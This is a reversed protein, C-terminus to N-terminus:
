LDDKRDNTLWGNTVLIDEWGDNNLDVFPAAWAWRGMQSRSAASIDTFKGAGVNRFLANGTTMSLFQDRRQGSEKPLFLQQPVIRSGAATFMGAIYLDMHGDRDCDGWAASMGFASLGLGIKDAVDRFKGRDNRYFNLRGFDNAVALDPDGDEDFDDFAAGFSWRSNNENLGSERTIDTFKLNGPQSDNRLFVNQGGNSADHLPAPEAIRGPIATNPYYATAYVDLDGDGDYDAASLSMFNHGRVAITPPGFRGTGDNVQFIIDQDAAIALDKDGDNDFDALLASMSPELWDVGCAAAADRVKGDPQHMLLRNPLGAPQCVYVDELGDGDVDGVALGHHGFQQITIGADMRRLWEPQGIALQSEWVPEGRMLEATREVFIQGTSRSAEEFDELKLSRLRTAADSSKIWQCNWHATQSVPGSRSTGDREIRVRTEFRGDPTFSSLGIIKCKVHVSEPDCGPPLAKRWADSFAASSLPTFEKVPGSRLITLTGDQFSQSLERPRLETSRFGSDLVAAITKDDAQPDLLADLQELVQRATLESKWGDKSPDDIGEVERRAGPVLSARDPNSPTPEASAISILMPLLTVWFISRM